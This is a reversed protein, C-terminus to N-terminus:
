LPCVCLRKVSSIMALFADEPVGKLRCTQALCVSPAFLQRAAPDTILDFGYALLVEEIQPQQTVVDYQLTSQV